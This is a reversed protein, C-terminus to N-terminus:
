FKLIGLEREYLNKQNRYYKYKNFCKKCLFFSSVLFREKKEDELTIHECFTDKMENYFIYWTIAKRKM